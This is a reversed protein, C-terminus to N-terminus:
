FAKARQKWYTNQQLLDLYMRQAEIFERSGNSDGWSRLNEMRNRCADIRPQFNRVLNIGWDWIAKRCSGLRNILSYGQTNGWCNVVIERCRRDNIWLNEFKFRRRVRFQVSLLPWLVLALHDSTPAYVSRAKAEGFM